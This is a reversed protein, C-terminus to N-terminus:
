QHANAALGWVKRNEPWIFSRMPLPATFGEGSGKHSIPWLVRGARRPLGQQPSLERGSGHYKFSQLDAADPQMPIPVRGPRLAGPAAPHIFVASCERHAEELLEEVKLTITCRHRRRPLSMWRALVALDFKPLWGPKTSQPRQSACPGSEKLVREGGRRKKQSARPLVKEPDRRTWITPKMDEEPKLTM